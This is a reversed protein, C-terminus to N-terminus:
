HKSAYRGVMANLKLEYLRAGETLEGYNAKDQEFERRLKGFVDSKIPSPHEKRHDALRVAYKEYKPYVDFGWLPLFLTRLPHNFLDYGWVLGGDVDYELATVLNETDGSRLARLHQTAIVGRPLNEAM